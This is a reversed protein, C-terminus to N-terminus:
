WLWVNEMYLGSAGKTVHMAMFAAICNKNVNSNGPTKPCQQVQLQSGTFGGIRTHVDWMGSPTGSTALNWEILTAGAQAGQTSVVFDSLEVYGAQGSSTGVQVVVKPANINNFASGSSM